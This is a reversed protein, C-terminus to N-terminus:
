KNVSTRSIKLFSAIQTRSHGDKFHALALLRM